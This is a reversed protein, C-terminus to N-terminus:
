SLTKSFIILLITFLIEIIVRPLLEFRNDIDIVTDNINSLYSLFLLLAILIMVILDLDQLM